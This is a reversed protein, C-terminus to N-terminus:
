LHRGQGTPVLGAVFAAIYINRVTVLPDGFLENSFFYLSYERDPAVLAFQM